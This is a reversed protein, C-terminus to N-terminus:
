RLDKDARLRAHHRRRHGIRSRRPRQHLGMAEPVAQRTRRVTRREPRRRRRLLLPLAPQLLAPDRRHGGHKHRPHPHRAAPAEDETLEFEHLADHIQQLTDAADYHVTVTLSAEDIEAEIPEEDQGGTSSRGPTTGTPSPFNASASGTITVDAASFESLGILLARVQAYTRGSIDLQIRKATADVSAAQNPNNTAYITWGNSAAGAALTAPIRVNIRQTESNGYTATGQTAQARARADLAWDAGADEKILGLLLGLNANNGQRLIAAPSGGAGVGGGEGGDSSEFDLDVPSM